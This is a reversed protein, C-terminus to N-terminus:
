EPWYKATYEACYPFNNYDYEAVHLELEDKYCIGEKRYDGHADNYKCGKMPCYVMKMNSM